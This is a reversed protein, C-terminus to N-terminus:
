FATDTEVIQGSKKWIFLIQVNTKLKLAKLFESGGAILVATVQHGCVLKFM